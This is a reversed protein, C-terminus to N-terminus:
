FNESDIFGLMTIKEGRETNKDFWENKEQITMNLKQFMIEELKKFNKPERKFANDGIMQDLSIEGEETIKRRGARVNLTIYEEFESSGNQISRITEEKLDNLFKIVQPANRLARVKDETNMASVDGTNALWEHEERLAPCKTAASCNHCQVPGPTFSNENILASEINPMMTSNFWENIEHLPITHTMVAQRSWHRPQVSIFNILVDNERINHEKIIGMACLRMKYNNIVSEEIISTHNYDIVHIKVIKNDKFELIAADPTSSTIELVHTWAMSYTRNVVISTANTTNQLVRMVEDFAVFLSPLMDDPLDSQRIFDKSPIKKTEQIHELGHFLIEHARENDKMERSIKQSINFDNYLHVSGPCLVWRDARDIDLRITM